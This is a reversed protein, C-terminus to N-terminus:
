MRDRDAIWTATCWAWPGVDSDGPALAMNKVFM